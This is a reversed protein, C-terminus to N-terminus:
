DEQDELWRLVEGRSYRLHRGCRYARPGTGHYRWAYLTQVPLGLFEAVERISWLRDVQQNTVDAEGEDNRTRRTRNQQATTM